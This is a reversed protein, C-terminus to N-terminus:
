LNDNAPAAVLIMKTTVFALKDCCFNQQSSCIKTAVFSMNQQLACTNTNTTVFTLKRRCIMDKTEVFTHKNHCIKNHCVYNQQLMHKTVVFKSKDCCFCVHTDRCFMDKTTIFTHKDCCFKQQSLKSKDHCVHTQLLYLKTAVFMFKCFLSFVFLWWVCMDFSVLFFWVRTKGSHHTFPIESVSQVPPLVDKFHLSLFQLHHGCIGSCYSRLGLVNVTVSWVPTTM